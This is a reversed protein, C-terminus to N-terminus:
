VIRTVKEEFDNRIQKFQSYVSADILYDDILITMGGLISPDTKARADITCKLLDELKTRVKELMSPPLDVATTVTAFRINKEHYYSKVFFFLIMHLLDMRGNHIVLILFKELSSAMKGGPVASRLLTMKQDQSVATTDEIARTFDPIEDMSDLIAKVQTLVQEGEGSQLAFRLLAHAYRSSIIGANM